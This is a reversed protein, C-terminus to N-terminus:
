LKFKIGGNITRGEVHTWIEDFQPNQHSGSVVPKYRGQRTDTINEFNLFISFRGFFKEVMFGIEWYPQTLQRNYLIQRDTYYAEFGAKYNGEKEAILALNVKSKPVLPLRQNGPLYEAKTDTFTYGGFLKIFDKYIFKLNTEFGKSYVNSTTNMLDFTGDINDNLVISNKLKTYFFMQNLSLKFHDGVNTKFNVDATAGLSKESSINQLPRLNQYNFSDTQETFTTPTKYGFGGGIRSTFKPSILFLLSTKPLFFTESKAYLANSYNVFDTRLGNEIKFFDLVDWTHQAYIGSTETKLNLNFLQPSNQKFQDLIYNAGLILTQNKGSRSWSIDSYFNQNKGRFEYGPVAIERNFIAYSSKYDLSSHDSWKKTFELTTTNRLSNNQEFYPHDANREGNIYRLDGGLRNGRTFANGLIIQADGSLYFFLKPHITFDESKPLESFDDDDVDFAKQNNYITMLTYGFNKSKKSAFLGFNVLGTNAYNTLIDLNQKERPTRSIFNIVGAIAGAGFLTSSPGKIIEVQKLDLPPIELISLGNAFNGFSPFGDKLIQTYRGDLGQIRISSSGSTASTQQVAIGTSEHLIMAVNSPRMNAKEDIEELEITEVRTPTNGITRSTRTSSIIVEEIDDEREQDTKITDNQAFSSCYLLIATLLFIKKM